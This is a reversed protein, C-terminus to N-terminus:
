KQLDYRRAVERYANQVTKPNIEIQQPTLGTEAIKKYISPLESSASADRYDSVLLSNGVISLTHQPLLIALRQKIPTINKDRIIFLVKDYNWRLDTVTGQYIIRGDALYATHSCAREILLCDRSGLILTKGSKIMHDAILTIANTLVDDFECEPFNFVIMVSDSYAAAVLTIVAREEPTLYDIPSLSIPGLGLSILLEFIEEQRYVLKIRQKATAFMLYELVNMNHYLMTTTGIYFVHDLIVRKNRVMGREVLVCKGDHYPKINAMIELLLKIEFASQGYIGWSEARKMLLNIDQLVPRLEKGECYHELSSLQKMHLVTNATIKPKFRRRRRKM